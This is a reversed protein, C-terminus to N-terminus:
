ANRQKGTKDRRRRWLSSTLLLPFLAWSNSCSSSTNPPPLRLRGHGNEEPRDDKNSLANAKLVSAAEYSNLGTGSMFLAIAGAAVPTSASTGYFARTGFIETNLGNPAAIDPKFVGSITPGQSSFSEIPQFLYNQLRHSGVTLVGPHNGPDVISGQPMAHFLFGGRAMLDFDVSGAGRVLELRIYHWGSEETRVTINEGPFCPISGINQEHVGRGVILGDPSQVWANIDSEGCQGMQDWILTFRYSGPELHIPLYETGHDFQHFGNLDGDSFTGRYHQDAYNGASTVMLTSSGLLRDMQDNVPGNGDYFSEKFFSLSMSIIDINNELSWSIANELSTLSNVRVLHVQSQPAIQQIVEACAVGHGGQEFAFRASYPDIEPACSRHKVCDHTQVNKLPELEEFGLWELDFVAISIDQGLHDEDHWAQAGIANLLETHQSQSGESWEQDAIAMREARWDEGSPPTELVSGYESSILANPYNPVDVRYLEPPLDVVPPFM